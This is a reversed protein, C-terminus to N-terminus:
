YQLKMVDHYKKVIAQYLSSLEDVPHLSPYANYALFKEVVECHGEEAAVNLPTRERYPLRYKAPMYDMFNEQAGGDDYQGSGCLWRLHTSSYVLIRRSLVKEELTWARSEVPHDSETYM